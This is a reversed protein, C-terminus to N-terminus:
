SKVGAALDYSSVADYLALYPRPAGATTHYVANRAAALVLRLREADAHAEDLAALVNRLHPSLRNEIGTGAMVNREDALAERAAEVLDRTM